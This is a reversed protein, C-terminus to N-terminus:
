GVGGVGHQCTRALVIRLALGIITDSIWPHLQWRRGDFFAFVSTTSTGAAWTFKAVQSSAGHAFLLLGGGPLGLLDSRSSSIHRLYAYAEGINLIITFQCPKLIAQHHNNM